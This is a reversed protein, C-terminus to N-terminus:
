LIQCRTAVIKEDCKQGCALNKATWPPPPTAWHYIRRHNCPMKSIIKGALRSQHLDGLRRLWDSPQHLCLWVSFVFFM